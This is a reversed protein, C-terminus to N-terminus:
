KIGRGQNLETIQDCLYQGIRLLKSRRTIATFGFPPIYSWWSLKNKFAKQIEIHASALGNARIVNWNNM